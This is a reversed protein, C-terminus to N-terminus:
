SVQIMSQATQQSGTYTSAMSWKHVLGTAGDNTTAHGSTDYTCLDFSTLNGSGDYVMNRVGQNTALLSEIMAIGANDPATYGSTALRSGVNTDLRSLGFAASDTYDVGDLVFRCLYLSMNAAGSIYLESTGGSALVANPVSFEYLGPMYTNDVAIFGGGTGAGGQNTYTGLVGATLTIATSTTDGDRFYYAILGASASTLGALGRGDSQSTDQTFIRFKFSTTGSKMTRVPM